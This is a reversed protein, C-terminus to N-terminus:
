SDIKTCYTETRQLWPVHDSLKKVELVFSVSTVEMMTCTNGICVMWCIKRLFSFYAAFSDFLVKWHFM